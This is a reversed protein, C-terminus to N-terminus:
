RLSSIEDMYPNIYTCATVKDGIDDPQRTIACAENYLLSISTEFTLIMGTKLHLTLMLIRELQRM